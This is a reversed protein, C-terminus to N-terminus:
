RPWINRFTECACFAFFFVLFCMKQSNKPRKEMFKAALAALYQPFPNAAIPFLKPFPQSLTQFPNPFKKFSKAHKACTKRTNQAHKARTKSFSFVKLGHDLRSSACGGPLGFILSWSGPSGVSSPEAQPRRPEAPSGQIKTGSKNKTKRSAATAASKIVAQFKVYDLSAASAASKNASERVANAVPFACM